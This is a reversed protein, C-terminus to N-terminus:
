PIEQIKSVRRAFFNIWFLSDEVLSEMWTITNDVPESLNLLDGSDELYASEQRALCSTGEIWNKLSQVDKDSPEPLCLIRHNQEIM